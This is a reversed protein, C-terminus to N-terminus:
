RSDNYEGWIQLARLRHKRVVSILKSKEGERIRDWVRLDYLSVRVVEGSFYVHVHPPPHENRLHVHIRYKGEKAIIPM